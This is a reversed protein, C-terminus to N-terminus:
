KLGVNKIKMRFIDLWMREDNLVQDVRCSLTRCLQWRWCLQALWRQLEQLRGSLEAMDQESRGPEEGAGKQHKQHFKIQPLGRDEQALWWGFKAPLLCSPVLWSPHHWAPGPVEGDLSTPPLSSSKSTNKVLTSLLEVFEGPVFYTTETEKTSDRFGHTFLKVPRRDDAHAHKFTLYVFFEGMELSNSPHRFLICSRKQIRFSDQCNSEPQSSWCHVWDIQWEPHLLNLM